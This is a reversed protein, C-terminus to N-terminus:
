NMAQERSWLSAALTGEEAPTLGIRNISLHILQHALYALREPRSHRQSWLGFDDVLQEVGLLFAQPIQSSPTNPAQTAASVLDMSGLWWRAHTEFLSAKSIGELPLVDFMATFVRECAAWRMRRSPRSELLTAACESARQFQVEALRLDEGTGWKGVEPDYYAVDIRAHSGLHEELDGFSAVISDAVDDDILCRLRIHPGDTDIFRLFHWRDICADNDRVIRMVMTTIVRDLQSLSGPYIKAYLWTLDTM